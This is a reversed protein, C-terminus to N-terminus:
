VISLCCQEHAHSRKEREPELIKKYFLDTVCHCSIIFTDHLTETGNLLNCLVVYNAGHIYFFLAASENDREPM